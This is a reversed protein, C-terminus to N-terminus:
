EFSIESIDYSSLRAFIDDAPQPGRLRLAHLPTPLEIEGELGETRNAAYRRDLFVLLPQWDQFQNLITLETLRPCSWAFSFTNVGHDPQDEGVEDSPKPSALDRLITALDEHSFASLTLAYTTPLDDIAQLTTTLDQTRAQTSLDPWGLHLHLQAPLKSLGLTSELKQFLRRTEQGGYLRFLFPPGEMDYTRTPVPSSQLTLYKGSDCVFIHLQGHRSVQYIIAPLILALPDIRELVPAIRVGTSLQLTQIHEARVHILVSGVFATDTALRLHTLNSLVIDPEVNGTAHIAQREEETGYVSELYLLELGTCSRLVTLLQFVSLASPMDLGTLGSIRLSRLGTLQHWPLTAHHVKVHRLSPFRPMKAIAPEGHPFTITLRELKPLPTLLDNMTPTIFTFPGTYDLERWRERHLHVLNFFAGALEQDVSKVAPLCDFVVTLPLNKSKKLASTLDKWIRPHNQSPVRAVAWLEPAADLVTARWHESVQALERVRSISWADSPVSLALIHSLIEVPLRCIPPITSNRHSRYQALREHTYVQFSSLCAALSSTIQDIAM